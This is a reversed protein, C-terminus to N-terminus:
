TDDGINVQYHTKGIVIVLFVITNGMNCLTTKETAMIREVENELNNINAPLLQCPIKKQYGEKGHAKHVSCTSYDHYREVRVIIM